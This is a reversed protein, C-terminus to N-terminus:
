HGRYSKADEKWVRDLGEQKAFQAIGRALEKLKPLIPLPGNVTLEFSRECMHDM